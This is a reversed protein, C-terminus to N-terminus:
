ARLQSRVWQVERAIDSALDGQRWGEPLVNWTYTEVELHPSIERERCLALVDKLIDQTSGIEGFSDKFVPVHCHVRLEGSPTEGNLAEFTQPLDLHRKLAGNAAQVTQHLYVGDDFPALLTETEPGTEALRIASSLQIKAVPIGAAEIAALSEAPDEFEVAAHCVDFCLGLHRRLATEAAETSLGTLRSMLAVGRPAFLHEEFFAVAEGSTELFCCPEPELALTVIKGSREAIGHLHAAHHIMNAAIRGIDAESQIEDRFAGPVTSVSGHRGEGQGNEPLLAALIDACQDTFDLREPSRWDPEYVRQKVPTGHFPGYPFANVTFVYLDNEALFDRLAALKEAGALVPAAEGSIRLGVGMPEHPSVRSKVEPLYRTLNTEIEAWSEGQHINTCYTLHPRGPLALQM